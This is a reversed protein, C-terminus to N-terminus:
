SFHVGALSALAPVPLVILFLGDGLSPAVLLHVVNILARVDMRSFVQQVARADRVAPPDVRPGCLTHPFSNKIALILRVRLTATHLNQCEGGARM